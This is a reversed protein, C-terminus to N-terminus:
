KNTPYNSPVDSHNNSLHFDRLEALRRNWLVDFADIKVKRMNISKGTSTNLSKPLLSISNIETGGCQPNLSHISKKKAKAQSKGRLDKPSFNSALSQALKKGSSVDIGAMSAAMKEKKLARQSKLSFGLKQLSEIRSKTLSCPEGKLWKKYVQRQNHVWYGLSKNELYQFPVNCHGYMAKFEILNKLHKQWQLDSSKMTQLNSSKVVNQPRKIMATGQGDRNNCNTKDGSVKNLNGSKMITTETEEKSRENTFPTDSSFSSSVTSVVPPPSVDAGCINENRTVKSNCRSQSRLNNDDINNLQKSINTPSISRNQNMDNHNGQCSLSNPPLQTPAPQSSPTALSMTQMELFNHRKRFPINSPFNSNSPQVSSFLTSAVQEDASPSCQDSNKHSGTTSNLDLNKIKSDEGTGIEDKEELSMDKKMKCRKHKWDKGLVWAFDLDELLQIRKETMSSPLGAKHKRYLQRQNNIWHGLRKNSAYHMPVNAHGNEEHYAKLAHYQIMWQADREVKKRGQTKTKATAAAIIENKSNQPVPSVSLQDESLKPRKRPQSSEFIHDNSSSTNNLTNGNMMKSTATQINNHSTTSINSINSEGSTMFPALSLISDLKGRESDHTNLFQFQPYMQHFQRQTQLAGHRQQIQFPIKQSQQQTACPTSTTSSEQLFQPIMQVNNVFPINADHNALSLIGGMNSIFGHKFTDTSMANSASAMEENIKVSKQHMKVHAQESVRIPSCTRDTAIASSIGQKCVEENNSHLDVVGLNEDESTPSVQPLLQTSKAAFEDNSSM